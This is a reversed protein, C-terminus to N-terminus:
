TCLLPLPEFKLIDQLAKLIGGNQISLADLSIISLARKNLIDKHLDHLYLM